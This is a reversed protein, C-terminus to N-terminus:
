QLTRPPRQKTHALYGYSPDAEPLPFLQRVHVNIGPFLQKQGLLARGSVTRVRVTPREIGIAGHHDVCPASYYVHILDVDAEVLTLAKGGVRGLM